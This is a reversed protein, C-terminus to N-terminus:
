GQVVVVQVRSENITSGLLSAGGGTVIFSTPKGLCDSGDAGLRLYSKPFRIYTPSRLVSNYHQCPVILMPSMSRLDLM